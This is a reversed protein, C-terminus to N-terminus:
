TMIVFFAVLKILGIVKSVKVPFLHKISVNSLSKSNLTSCTDIASLASTNITAGAVALGMLLKGCTGGTISNMIFDYVFFTCTYAGQIILYNTVSWSLLGTFQFVPLLVAFVIAMDFIRAFFRRAPSVKTTMERSKKNIKIVETEAPVKSEAM